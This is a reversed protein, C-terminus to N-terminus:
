RPEMLTRAAQLSEMATNLITSVASYDGFERARYVEHRLDILDHEHVLLLEDFLAMVDYPLVLKQPMRLDDQDAFQAVNM